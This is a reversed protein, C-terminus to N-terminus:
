AHSAHHTGGSAGGMADADNGFFGLVRADLLPRANKLDVLKAAHHAAQTDLSAGAVGDAHVGPYVGPWGDTASIRDQVLFFKERAAFNGACSLSAGSKRPPLRLLSFEKKVTASCLSM